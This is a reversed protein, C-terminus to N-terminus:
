AECGAAIRYFDALRDLALGLVVRGSRSPWGLGREAAGMGEGACIVRWCVDNLGPGVHTMAAGFRQRADIRTLTQRGQDCAGRHPSGDCPAGDWHMTVRPELGALTFDRQLLEGAAAQRTSLLGRSHLWAIVNEALNVRVSRRAEGGASPPARHRGDDPHPRTALHQPM